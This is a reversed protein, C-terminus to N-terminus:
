TQYGRTWHHLDIRNFNVLTFHTNMTYRNLPKHHLFWRILDSFLERKKEDFCDWNGAVGPTKLSSPLSWIGLIQTFCDSDQLLFNGPEWLFLKGVHCRALHLHYTSFLRLFDFYLYCPLKLVGFFRRFLIHSLILESIPHCWRQFLLHLLNWELLNLYWISGRSVVVSVITPLQSPSNVRVRAVCADPILRTVNLSVQQFFRPLRPRQLYRHTIPNPNFQGFLIHWTPRKSPYNASTSNTTPVHCASRTPQRHEDAEDAWQCGKMLHRNFLSHARDHSGWSRVQVYNHEGARVEYEINGGNWFLLYM